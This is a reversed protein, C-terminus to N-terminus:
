TMSRTSLAAKVSMSFLAHGQGVSESEGADATITYSHSTGPVVWREVAENIALPGQAAASGAITLVISLVAVTRM